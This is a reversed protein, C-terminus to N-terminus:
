FFTYLYNFFISINPFNSEIFIDSTGFAIDGFQLVPLGDEQLQLYKSGGSSIPVGRVTINTNGDGASAESRIGPIARFLEATTRPASQWMQDARITSISVSSELKSKPNSVGTIVTEKLGLADASLSFNQISNDAVINVVAKEKEFGMLSETVTVESLGKSDFSLIYNGKDDTSVSYQLDPISVITGPLVAGKNDNVSGKIMKTQAIAMNFSLCLMFFM